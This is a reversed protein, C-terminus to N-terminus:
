LVSITAFYLLSPSCGIGRAEIWHLRLRDEGFGRSRRQKASM